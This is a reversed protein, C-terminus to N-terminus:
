SDGPPDDPAVGILDISFSANLEGLRHVTCGRLELIPQDRIVLVDCVVSITLDRALAFEVLSVRDKWVYDLVENVLPDIEYLALKRSMVSWADTYLENRERLEPRPQRWISSPTMGTAASCDEPQWDRGGVLLEAQITPAREM